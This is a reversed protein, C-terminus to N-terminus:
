APQAAFRDEEVWLGLAPNSVFFVEENDPLRNFGHQLTDPNYRRRMRQLDAWGFGVSEIEQRSLGGPCYTVGFRGETAGHVLHAAAGLSDALERNRAVLEVVQDVGVYGYKRILRDNEKDEGFERVGPALVILEGGDAIAMRTRYISKNGIWTSKFEAPDLYVVVKQLPRPVRTLNVQASLEAARNFCDDDDGIFLGRLALSGDSEMAVVTLVYIIPLSRAFERSAYNLLRRVPTDARGMIREMGYVAGLYHSKNIGDRGGTGVFINKNYNAMGIVEHPVVQGISLILDMDGDALLRNVQADWSFDLRGESLERIYDSPVTGLTALDRKWNHECFLGHPVGPFMTDIEARSMPYHTGIAPLVAALRPGFYEWVFRTLTGARSHLRSMDPPVALVRRAPRHRDLVAYLASRLQEDTIREDVGGQAVCTM